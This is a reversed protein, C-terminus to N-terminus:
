AEPPVDASERGTFWTKPLNVVSSSFTTNAVTYHGEWYGVPTIWTGKNNTEWYKNMIEEHTPAKPELKRYRTPEGDIADKIIDLVIYYGKWGEFEYDGVLIDPPLNNIDLEKWENSM